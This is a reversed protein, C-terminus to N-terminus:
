KPMGRNSRIRENPVKRQLVAHGVICVTFADGLDFCDDIEIRILDGDAGVMAIQRCEDNVIDALADRGADTLSRM